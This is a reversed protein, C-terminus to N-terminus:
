VQGILHSSLATYRRDERALYNPKRPVLNRPNVDSEFFTPDNSAGSGLFM